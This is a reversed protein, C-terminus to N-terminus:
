SESCYGYTERYWQWMASEGFKKSSAQSLQNPRYGSLSKLYEEIAPRAAEFDGLRLARYAAELTGLPDAILDEYRIEFLQEEGLTSPTNRFSEYMRDFTKEILPLYDLDEHPTQFAQTLDLVRWTHELSPIMAAPDRTIHLFQVGPFQKALWVIRGTHPPAKVLLRRDTKLTVAKYFWTLRKRLRSEQQLPIDQMDLTALDVPPENPFALRRYMTPGGMAVMAFEDEQPRDLGIAMNDMPRRDPMLWRLFKPLWSQTLLFHNPAFCQYTTPAIFRPDRALLEYLHTTGSRFHGVIMLPPSLEKAATSRGFLLQQLWYLASNMVAVPLLLLPMHIRSLSCRFGGEWLLNVVDGFRMGFWIRPTWAPHRNPPLSNPPTESM